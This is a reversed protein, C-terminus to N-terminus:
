KGFGVPFNKGTPLFHLRFSPLPNLPCPHPNPSPGTLNGTPVQGTPIFFELDGIELAVQELEIKEVGDLLGLLRPLSERLM